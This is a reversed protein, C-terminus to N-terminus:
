EQRGPVGQLKGPWSIVWHGRVVDARRKPVKLLGRSPLIGMGLEM